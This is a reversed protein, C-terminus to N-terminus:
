TDYANHFVRENHGILPGVDDGLGFVSNPIVKRIGASTVCDSAVTRTEV